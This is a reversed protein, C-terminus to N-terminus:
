IVILTNIGDIMLTRNYVTVNSGPNGSTVKFRIKIITGAVLPTAQWILNTRYTGASLGESISSAAIDAGNINVIFQVSSTIDSLSYDCSFSLQYNGTAGLLIPDLENTTLTIGPLDIYVLSTTSTSNSASVFQRDKNNIAPALLDRASIAFIPYDTAKFDRRRNDFHGLIFYDRDLDVQSALIKREQAVLADFNVVDM